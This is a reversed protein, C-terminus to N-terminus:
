GPISESEFGTLAIFLVTRRPKREYNHALRPARIRNGRPKSDEAATEPQALLLKGPTEAYREGGDVPPLGTAGLQRGPGLAGHGLQLRLQGLGLSLQGV